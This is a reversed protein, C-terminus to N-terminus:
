QTPSCPSLTDSNAFLTSTVTQSSTQKDLYVYSEVMDLNPSHKNPDPLSSVVCVM